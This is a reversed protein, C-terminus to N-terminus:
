DQEVIIVDEEDIGVESLSDLDEVVLVVNGELAFQEINEIEEENNILSDFEVAYAKGSLLVVRYM